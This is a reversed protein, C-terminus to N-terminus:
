EDIEAVLELSQFEHMSALELAIDVFSPTVCSQPRNYLDHTNSHNLALEMPLANGMNRISTSGTSVVLLLIDVDEDAGYWLQRRPESGSTSGYRQAESHDM